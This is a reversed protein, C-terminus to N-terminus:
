SWSVTTLWPIFTSKSLIGTEKGVNIGKRGSCSVFSSLHIHDLPFLLHGIEYDKGECM